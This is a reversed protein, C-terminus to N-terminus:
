IKRAVVDITRYGVVPMKIKRLKRLLEYKQYFDSPLKILNSKIFFRIILDMM